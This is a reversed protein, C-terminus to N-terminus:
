ACVPVVVVVSDAAVAVSRVAAAAAGELGIAVVLAAALDLGGLNARCNVVSASTSTVLPAQTDM